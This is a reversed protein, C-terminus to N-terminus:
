QRKVAKIEPTITGVKKGLHAWGHTHKGTRQLQLCPQEKRMFEALETTRFWKAKM